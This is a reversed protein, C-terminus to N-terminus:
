IVVFGTNTKNKESKNLENQIQLLHHIIQSHTYKLQKQLDEKCTLKNFQCYGLENEPRSEPTVSLYHEGIRSLIESSTMTSKDLNLCIDEEVNVSSVQESRNTNEEEEEQYDVSYELFIDKQMDIASESCSIVDVTENNIDKDLIMNNRNTKGTNSSNNLKGIQEKLTTNIQNENSLYAPIGDQNLERVQFDSPFLKIDGNILRFASTDADEQHGHTSQNKNMLDYVYTSIGMGEMAQNVRDIIDPVPVGFFAQTESEM